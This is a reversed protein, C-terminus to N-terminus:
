QNKGYELSVLKVCANFASIVIHNNLGYKTLIELVSKLDERNAYANILCSVHNSTPFIGFKSMKNFIDETKQNLEGESIANMICVFTEGNPLCNWKEISEFLKLASIPKNNQGYGSIMSNITIINMNEHKITRFLNEATHIDGCKSHMNILSTVLHSNIKINRKKIQEHINKGLSLAVERKDACGSILITAEITLALQDMTDLLCGFHAVTPKMEMENFTKLTLELNNSMSLGNLLCVYTFENPNVKSLKMEQFVKMAIEIEGCSAYMNILSTFLYVSMSVKRKVM